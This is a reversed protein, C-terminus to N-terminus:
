PVLNLRGTLVDIFTSIPKDNYKRYSGEMLLGAEKMWPEYSVTDRYSVVQTILSDHRLVVYASKDEKGGKSLTVSRKYMRDKHKGNVRIYSLRLSDKESFIVPTLIFSNTSYVPLGYLTIDMDLFVSDNRVEAMNQKVHVAGTYVKPPFVQAKLLHPFFLGCLMIYLSIRM